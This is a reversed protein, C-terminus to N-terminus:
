GRKKIIRTVPIIISFIICTITLCYYGFFVIGYFLVLFPESSSIYRFIGRKREALDSDILQFFTSFVAFVFLGLFFGLLVQKLPLVKMRSVIARGERFCFIVAFLPALKVISSLISSLVPFHSSVMVTSETASFISGLLASSEDFAYLTWTLVIAIFGPVPIYFFSKNMHTDKSM